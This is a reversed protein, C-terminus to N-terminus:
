YFEYSYKFVYILGTEFDKMVQASMLLTNKEYILSRLTKQKGNHFIAQEYLNGFTDYTYTDIIENYGFVYSIDSKKSVRGKEDYEFKIKSEKGSLTLRFVDEIHYGLDDYYSFCEQYEKDYNNYYKRVKQNKVFQHYTFTESSIVFQQGLKFHYRDHGCNEERCYTEKIIRGLSDYEYNYSYFGNNDNRRKTLLRDKDDYIFYIITTDKNSSYSAFTSMMIVLRGKQDFEYHFFQDREQMAEGERKTSVSGRIIKVKNTRIFERRFFNEDTFANGEGNEIIQARSFLSLFLFFIFAGRKM